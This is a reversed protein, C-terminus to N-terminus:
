ATRAEYGRLEYDGEIVFFEQDHNIVQSDINTFNSHCFSLFYVADLINTKGEGNNGIFCNVKPSLELATSKINKYNIISIKKLRM